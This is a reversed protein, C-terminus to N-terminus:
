IKTLPIALFTGVTIGFSLCFGSIFGVNQKKNAMEKPVLNPGIAMFGSTTTGNLTAFLFTNVIKFWDTDIM